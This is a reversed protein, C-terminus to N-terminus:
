KGGLLCGQNPFRADHLCTGLSCWRHFPGVEHLCRIADPSVGGGVGVCDVVLGRLAMLSEDEGVHDGEAVEFFIGRGIHEVSARRQLAILDVDNLLPSARAHM